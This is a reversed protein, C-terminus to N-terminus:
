SERLLTWSSHPVRIKCYYSCLFKRVTKCKNIDPNWNQHDCFLYTRVRPIIALSLCILRASRCLALRLGLTEVHYAHDERAGYPFRGENPGFTNSLVSTLAPGAPRQCVSGSSGTIPDYSLIHTSSDRSARWFKLGNCNACSENATLRLVAMYSNPHCSFALSCGVSRRRLEGSKYQQSRTGRAEILGRASFGEAVSSRPQDRNIKTARM